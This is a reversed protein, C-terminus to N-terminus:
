PKGSASTVAATAPARGSGAVAGHVKVSPLSIATPLTAASGKVVAVLAALADLRTQFGAADTGAKAYETDLGRARADADVLKAEVADNAARTRDVAALMPAHAAANASETQFQLGAVGALAVAYVAASVGVLMVARTPTDLLAERKANATRIPKSGTAAVAPKSRPQGAIPAGFVPAGVASAASGTVRDLVPRGLVPVPLVRDTM